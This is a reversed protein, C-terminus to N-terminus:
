GEDRLVTDTELETYHSFWREVGHGDGGRKKIRALCVAMRPLLVVIRQPRLTRRWWDRWYASPESLIFWAEAWPCPGGLDALLRNRRELALDLWAKPNWEHAPEGSLGSAIVDLDLVLDRAGAHSAVWESKGSGPPGCVITLPVTSPKLGPPHPERRLPLSAAGTHWHHNPDLPVGNQDFGKVVFNEVRDGNYHRMGKERHSQSDCTACLTRLNDLSLALEPHTRRPKIHDVRSQRRGSVDAGCIVCRFDDRQLALVRLTLWGISRLFKRDSSSAKPM